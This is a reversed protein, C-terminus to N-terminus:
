SLSLLNGVGKIQVCWYTLEALMASGPFDYQFAIDLFSHSSPIDVPGLAKLAAGGM